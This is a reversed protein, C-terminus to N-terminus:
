LVKTVFKPTFRTLCPCVSVGDCPFAFAARSTVRARWTPEAVTCVGLRARSWRDTHRAGRSPEGQWVSCEGEDALCCRWQGSTRGHGGQSRAHRHWAAMGAAYQSPLSLTSANRGKGGIFPAATGRAHACRRWVGNSNAAAMPARSGLEVKRDCVKSGSGEEVEGCGRQLRGFQRNRLMAPWCVPASAGQPWWGGADSLVAALLGRFPVRPSGVGSGRGKGASGLRGRAPISSGGSAM